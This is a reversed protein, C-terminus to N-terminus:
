IKKTTERKVLEVPIQYVKQTDTKGTEILDLLIEAAKTGMAQTNQYITTLAPKFYRAFDIDDYGIVSVDEPIRYGKHELARIVGFALVDSHVMIVEPLEKKQQLLKLLAQYGSEDGFGEATVIDEEQYSLHHESMEKKFADIRNVFSRSTTPGSIVSIKTFGLDLAHKISLAIGQYDDSIISVLNPMVIDTSVCPYDSNVIEIINPNNINGMVILVGDVKKNECWELYTLENKGLKSVILVIDYGEKAMHNKFAQLIRSFFPHEFGILSIDSYIVGITWSKRSKLIRASRDAVYGVEDVYALVRARTDLGVRGKNNVVKSVTSPSIGLAKAVDIITKKMNGREFCKKKTNHHIYRKFPNM